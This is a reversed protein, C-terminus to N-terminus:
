KEQRTTNKISFAIQNILLDVILKDFAFQMNYTYGNQSCKTQILKSTYHIKWTIKEHLTAVTISNFLSKNNDLAHWLTFIKFIRFGNLWNIRKGLICRKFFTVIPCWNWMEIGWLQMQSPAYHLFFIILSVMM